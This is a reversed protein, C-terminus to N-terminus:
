AVPLTFSFVSGQGLASEVGVQGGLKEVIRLVISLGLGHGKTSAQHLRTFPKFLREQEEDTLGPGNDRVWFRITTTPPQHNTTPTSQGSGVSWQGSSLTWQGSDDFGLEVRPPRGGYKIANSVYNVWVEEVWSGYGLVSPWSEPVILEAQYEEVMDAMREQVEAVVSAMDLPGVQLDEIKRVGALLLLEDIIVAMKRGKRAITRLYGRPEKEDLPYSEKLVEAFGVIYALPGKLDHAVTHAFADLEENRAEVQATYQRLEAVLRANVVAISASAALTEVLTLDDQVFNGQLKNVVELVGIVVDRIKLPVALLSRTSFGTKEDVGSFFRADNATDHVIVHRGSQAVWGVIGQGFRVRQDLAFSGRECLYAAQCILYDGQERDWLWVSAGEAGVIEPVERLLREVVLKLELTASLEQGVRNLLTLERNRHLLAEEAHKRLTIDRGVSQYETLRGQEDFIARNIWQQWRVQGDPTVARHEIMKVPSYSDLAAIHELVRQRDEHFIHGMFSRGVLDQGEPAYYRQYAENVFVLAGGPVFRCVLETQDEVVARYRAESERLADQALKREIAYRMARALLNGDVQGKVLYDQAGERVARVALAEDDLGSLVIIPLAAEQDRVQLFTEFGQSDPLSLDLLVLDFPEQGLRQLAVSLREVLTVQFQGPAARALMERLLRADGPNDEVLLIQIEM